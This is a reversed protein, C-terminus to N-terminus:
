INIGLDSFNRLAWFQLILGLNVWTRIPDIALNGLKQIVLFNCNVTKAIVLSGCRGAFRLQVVPNM